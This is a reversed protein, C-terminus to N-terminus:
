PSIKPSRLIKVGIAGRLDDVRYGAARDGPYREALMRKLEPTMTERPGHCNLCAPGAILPKMCRLVQVNQERVVEIYEESM